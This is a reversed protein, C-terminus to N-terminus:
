FGNDIRKAASPCEIEDDAVRPRDTVTKGFQNEKM